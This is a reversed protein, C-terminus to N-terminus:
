RSLRNRSHEWARQYAKATAEIQSRVSFEREVRHRAQKGLRQAFEPEDCLRSMGAALAVHDGPSVLLAEEGDTVLEPIGGVDSALLPKALAAAELLAVPTGESLSPMVFFDSAKVISLVEGPERFGLLRIRDQLGCRGLRMELDARLQGEGVILCYLSPCKRAIRAFADILCGYGKAWVLRGVASCVVADPPLKYTRKLWVSDGNVSDPNIDIANLIQWVRGEPVGSERLMRTSDSSVTICLDLNSNSVNEFFQYLRGKFSGGHEASYWSHITSVLASGTRKAALSGWVKSQINQTDLVQYGEERVLRVLRFVIGPDFKRDGVVHVTHRLSLARRTIAGQSIGALAIGSSQFHKLLSLVRSSSGGYQLSLDVILTRPFANEGIM